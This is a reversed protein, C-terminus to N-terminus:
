AYQQALTPPVCRYLGRPYPAGDTHSNTHLSPTGHSLHGIDSRPPLTHWPHAAAAKLPVNAFTTAKLPSTQSFGTRPRCTAGGLGSIRGRECPVDEHCVKGGSACRVARSVEKGGPLGRKKAMLSAASDWIYSQPLGLLLYRLYASVLVHMSSYTCQIHPFWGVRSKTWPGAALCNPLLM